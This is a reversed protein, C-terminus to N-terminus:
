WAVMLKLGLFGLKRMGILFFIYINRNRMARLILYSFLHYILTYTWYINLLHYNVERNGQVVKLRPNEPVGIKRDLVKPDSHISDESM